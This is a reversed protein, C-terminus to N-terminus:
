NLFTLKSDCSTNSRIQDIQGKILRFVLKNPDSFFIKRGVGTWSISKEDKLGKLAVINLENPSFDNIEFVLVEFRLFNLRPITKFRTLQTPPHKPHLAHHISQWLPNSILSKSIRMNLRVPQYRNSTRTFPSGEM